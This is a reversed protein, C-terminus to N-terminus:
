VLPKRKHVIIQKIFFIASGTVIVILADLSLREIAEWVLNMKWFALSVGVMSAAPILVLGILPGAIVSKRFSATMVMGAAGALLPVLFGKLKPNSIIEVAYNKVFESEEVAGTRIMLAMILFASFILVAYGILTAYIGRWILNKNRLVIGLPIKSLPEFGPAIISAAIFAIAQPTSESVLGVSAIGGGCAMLAIYNATVRGQHRLGTEMEEWIAEDLDKKIREDQTENILSALQSSSISVNKGDTLEQVERLVEDAGKNLVHVTVIDGKPKVAAGHSIALSIVYKNEALQQCLKEAKESELIIEIERHM